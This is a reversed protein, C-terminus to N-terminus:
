VAGAPEKTDALLADLLAERAKAQTPGEAYGDNALEARCYARRQWGAPIRKTRIASALLARALVDESATNGDTIAAVMVAAGPPLTGGAIMTGGGDHGPDLVHLNVEGRTANEAARKRAYSITAAASERALAVLGASGINAQM